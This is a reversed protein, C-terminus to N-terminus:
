GEVKLKEIFSKMLLEIFWKDDDGDMYESDGFWKKSDNPDQYITYEGFGISGCWILKFGAYKENVFPQLEVVEVEVKERDIAM